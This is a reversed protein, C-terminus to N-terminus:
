KDVPPPMLCEEATDCLPCLQDQCLGDKNTMKSLLDKICHNGSFLLKLFQVLARSSQESLLHEMKCADARAFEPSVGLVDEFFRTLLVFNHEVKHALTDGEHTLSLFRKTDEEVLGKERLQSLALSAAGRSISLMNAVDTARAYGQDERLRNIAMLYHAVSHSLSNEELARWHSSDNTVRSM